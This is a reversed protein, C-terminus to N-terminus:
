TSASGSSHTRTVPLVGRSAALWTCYKLPGASEGLPCLLRGRRILEHGFRLAQRWDARLLDRHDRLPQREAFYVQLVPGDGLVQLPVGANAGGERLGAALRRGAAHLREYV